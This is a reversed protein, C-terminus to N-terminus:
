AVVAEVLEIIEDINKKDEPYDIATEDKEIRAGVINRFSNGNHDVFVLNIRDQLAQSYEMNKGFVTDEKFVLKREGLRYLLYFLSRKCTDRKNRTRKLFRIGLPATIVTGSFAKKFDELTTENHIYEKERLGNYLHTIQKERSPSDVWRFTHTLYSADSAHYDSSHKVFQEIYDTIYENKAMKSNKIWENIILCADRHPATAQTRQFIAEEDQLHNVEHEVHLDLHRETLKNIIKHFRIEKLLVEKVESSLELSDRLSQLQLYALKSTSYIDKPTAGLSRLYREKLRQWEDLYHMHNRIGKLSVGGCYHTLDKEQNETVFAVYFFDMWHQKLHLEFSHFIFGKGKSIATYHDRYLNSNDRLRLYKPIPPSTNVGIIKLEGSLQKLNNISLNM